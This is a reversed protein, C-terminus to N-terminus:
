QVGPELLLSITPVGTFVARDLATEIPTPRKIWGLDIGKLDDVASGYTLRLKNGPSEDALEDGTDPSGGTWGQAKLLDRQALVLGRSSPYHRYQIVLELACYARTGGNCERQQAVVTGGPVLPLNSLSPNHAGGGGGCGALATASAVAALGTVVRRAAM